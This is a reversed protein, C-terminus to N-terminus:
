QNTFMFPQGCRMSLVFRGSLGHASLRGSDAPACPSTALGLRFRGVRHLGVLQDVLCPHQWRTRLRHGVVAHTTGTHPRCVGDAEYRGENSAPPETHRAPTM